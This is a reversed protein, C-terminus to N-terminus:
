EQGFYIKGKSLPQLKLIIYFIPDNFDGKRLPPNLPIKLCKNLIGGLGGKRFPPTKAKIQHM